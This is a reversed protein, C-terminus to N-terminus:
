RRYTLAVSGVLEDPTRTVGLSESHRRRGSVSSTLKFNRDVLWTGSFNLADVKSSGSIGIYDGDDHGVEASLVVNRYLEHDVGLTSRTVLVATAAPLAINQVYRRSSLRITTLETALYSLQTDFAIEKRTKVGPADFDAYLYGIALQGRILPTIESRVGTLVQFGQEDRDLAGPRQDPYRRKEGNLSVFFARGDDEGYSLDIGAESLTYNRFRQDVAGGELGTNDQFHYKTLGTSLQVGLAGWARRGTLGLRKRTYITPKRTTLVEEIAVRDQALREIGANAAISEGPRGDLRGKLNLGYTTANAEPNEGYASTGVFAEAALANRSWNSKAQAALIIEGIVDRQGDSQLFVNSDYGVKLTAQSNVTFSGILDGIPDYDPHKRDRVPVGRAPDRAGRGPELLPYAERESLSTFAASGSPKATQSQAFAPAALLGVAM